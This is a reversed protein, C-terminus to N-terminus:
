LVEQITELKIGRSGKILFLTDRKPNTKLFKKAAVNNVFSIYENQKVSKFLKGVLVGKLEHDMLLEVIAEHEKKADKGLELMDGLIFFKKESESKVLNYIAEKMSSPNANYCDLIIKNSGQEVLQSRNNTPTYNEIGKQISNPEVGYYDALVVAAMINNWNYTGILQSNIEYRNEKYSVELSLFPHSSTVKGLYDASQSGYTIAKTKVTYQNLREDSTNIFVQKGRSTLNSFLETKGKEVGEIGGFGELHAKGINTILGCDPNCINALFEIEKQHNAGMEIIAIQHEATISLLSLPVGIHNNLNGQTAFVNYKESLASKILEKTTTKGNSGTIGIVPIKLTNRHFKALNQLAQLTDEVLLFREDKNLEPDSIVAFQAGKNLAEEAFKNGDFNDGSLAFFLSNKEINRTDTSIKPYKTYHNYLQELNTNM